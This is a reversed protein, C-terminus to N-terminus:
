WTGCIGGPMHSYDLSFLGYNYAANSTIRVSDRGGAPAINTSDVGMYVSGNYTNIYSNRTATTQNVYNVYGDTPDSSQFCPHTWNVPM